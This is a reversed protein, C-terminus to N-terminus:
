TRLDLSKAGSIASYALEETDVCGWALKKPYLAHEKVVGSGHIVKSRAKGSERALVWFTHRDYVVGV